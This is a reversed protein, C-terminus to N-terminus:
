EHPENAPVTKAGCYNCFKSDLPLRVGCKNCFLDVPSQRTSTLTAAPEVAVTPANETTATSGFPERCLICAKAGPENLAKCNSCRYKRTQSVDTQCFPCKSADLHIRKKCAPCSRDSGSTFAFAFGFPGFLAGLGFWLCGNAGRNQAVLAAGIGCVIWMLIAIEM